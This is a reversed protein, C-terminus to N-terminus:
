LHVYTNIGKGAESQPWYVHASWNGKVLYVNLHQNIDNWQAKIQVEAIM